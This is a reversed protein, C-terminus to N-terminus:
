QFSFGVLEVRYGFDQELSIKERYLFGIRECFTQRNKADPDTTSINYCTDTEGIPLVEQYPESARRFGEGGPAQNARLDPHPYWGQNGEPFPLILDLWANSLDMQYAEEFFYLHGGDVLYWFTGTEPANKFDEPPNGVECIAERELKAIYVGDVVDADVVTETVRWIAEMSEDFGLHEYVWTNGVLLPYIELTRATAPDLSAVLRAQREVDTVVVEPTLRSLEMCPTVAWQSCGGLLFALLILGFKQLYGNLNQKFRM